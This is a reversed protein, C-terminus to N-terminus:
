VRPHRHGGYGPRRRRVGLLVESCGPESGLLRKRRLPVADLEGDGAGNPTIRLAAVPPAPAADRAVAVGAVVAGVSGAVVGVVGGTGLGGGAGGRRRGGGGDGRGRRGRNGRGRGGYGGRWRSRRGGRDGDCREDARDGGDGDTGPLGREGAAASGWEGAPEGDSRGTGAREHDVGGAVARREADGHWRRRAPFVVSAGLVPLDNRDRVEVVTPVATGQGIINVGDEGELVVIRLDEGQAAAVPIAASIMTAAGTLVIGVAFVGALRVVITLLARSTDTAGSAPAPWRRRM